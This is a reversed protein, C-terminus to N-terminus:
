FKGVSEASSGVKAHRLGYGQGVVRIQYITNKYSFELNKSLKRDEQISFILNLEDDTNNLKSHMDFTNKPMKEFKANHMKMFEPLYANAAKIDSIGRLRLEKVLRDQLVGNAREVRGKAQPSHACILEIELERCVRQFQTEGEHNNEKTNIRFIGHKDSYFAIPKGCREIYEKAAAFYGVTTESPVFLLQVLKSTADDVFVLLCCKEARGEFWDHPSGDIQILEGFNERRERQQHVLLLKRRKGSWLEEEIMWKRLTERSIKVGDIETLKEMALTPGFDVYKSKILEIAKIKIETSLKNNSAHGRKGSLIGTTGHQVYRKYIRRVQRVSIKLRKAAEEQTVRKEKLLSMIELKAVDKQSM